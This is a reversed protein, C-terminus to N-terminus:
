VATAAAAAAASTAATLAKLTAAPAGEQPSALLRQLVACCHAFCISSCPPCPLILHGGITFGAPAATCHLATCHALCTDAHNFLNMVCATLVDRRLWCASSQLLPFVHLVSLMQRRSAALHLSFTIANTYNDEVSTLAVGEALHLDFCM